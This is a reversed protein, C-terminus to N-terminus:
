RAPRLITRKDTSYTTASEITLFDIQQMAGSLWDNMMNDYFQSGPNGSQGGPYIGWARIQPGFEVVMRWSPGNTATIANVTNHNGDTPLKTRGLGPIRGLHNVNTGRTAGWTWGKGWEGYRESLIGCSTKFSENILQELTEVQETTRNDIFPSRPNNLIMWTTVDRSPWSLSVSDRVIDDRWILDYLQSWWTDYVRPAIHDARYEYNWSALEHLAARSLSEVSDETLESSGSTSTEGFVQQELASFSTADVLKLMTPLLRRAHINTVDNQLEIMQEPTTRELQALRENIRAGREHPAYSSGLYYPYTLDTPNQNASSVFGRSPNLIAPVQDMPVFHQWDHLPNSGDSIYKGQDRQRVPFKGSHVIAINGARSRDPPGDRGAYVFNQAPCHVHKLAQRFDDYNRARNLRNFALLENSSDLAAWRMVFGPIARTDFPKEHEKYVLPGHHTWIVTDIVSAAGRVKIEEIRLQTPRWTNDFRYERLSADKFEVRYWDLMDSNANTVGWGMHENFGILIGPAGPSTVGYVNLDPAILQIEYWISPLTLSLHPDNALIPFGSVTRKGSVAWNNSGVYSEDPEHDNASGSLAKSKPSSPLLPKMPWKTGTPIVPDMYPPFDLFLEAMLKDGLAERTRTMAAEDSRFTLTFSFYKLLLATKIPTWEEPKYDLIKYEIPLKKTELQHIWANVGIVFPEIIGRTENNALVAEAAKEAAAVIGVRRRFRDYELTGSGLFESLRGASALAQFEMQWLRDRATIYGQAIYLDHLNKAVIHPVRRDNWLVNVEDRLEPIDLREPLHDMSRNNQWFGAFPNLFKGLPPLPPIRSDLAFFLSLSLLSLLFPRLWIM